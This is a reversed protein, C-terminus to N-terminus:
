LMRHWYLWESIASLIGAVALLGIIFVIYFFATM